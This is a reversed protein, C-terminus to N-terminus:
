FAGPFTQETNAKDGFEKALEVLAEICELKDAPPLQECPAIDVGVVVRVTAEGQVTHTTGGKAAFQGCGTLIFAFICVKKM